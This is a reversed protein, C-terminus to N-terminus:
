RWVWSLLKKRERQFYKHPISNAFRCAVFNRIFLTMIGITACLFLQLTPYPNAKDKVFFGANNFSRSILNKREEKENRFTLFYNELYM